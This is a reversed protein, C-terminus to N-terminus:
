DGKGGVMTGRSLARDLMAASYGGHTLGCVAVRANLRRIPLAPAAYAGSRYIAGTRGPVLRRAAPQGAPRGNSRM